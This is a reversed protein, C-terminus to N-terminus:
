RKKWKGWGGDEKVTKKSHCSACLAQHNDPNWFQPDRPGSVPNIHDTHQSPKIINDRLCIVCLPNRQRYNRSYKIWDNTYGREIRSGRQKDYQKQIHKKHKDCYRSTTTVPCGPYNCPKNPLAPMRRRITAVRMQNAQSKDYRTAELLSYNVPFTIACQWFLKKTTNKHCLGNGLNYLQLLM